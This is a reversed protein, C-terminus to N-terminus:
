ASRLSFSKKVNQPNESPECFLTFADKLTCFLSASNSTL